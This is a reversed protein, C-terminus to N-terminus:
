KTINNIIKIIDKIADNYAKNEPSFQPMANATWNELKLPPVEKLLYSQLLNLITETREMTIDNVDRDNWYIQNYVQEKLSTSQKPM